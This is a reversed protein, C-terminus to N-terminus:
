RDDTALARVTEDIDILALAIAVSVNPTKARVSLRRAAEVAEGHQDLVALIRRDVM